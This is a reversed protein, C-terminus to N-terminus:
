AHSYVPRGEAYHASVPEGYSSYNVDAAGYAPGQKVKLGAYSPGRTYEPRSTHASRAPEYDFDYQAYTAQERPLARTYSSSSLKTRNNDGVHYRIEQGRDEKRSRHKPRRPPEYDDEDDSLVEAQPHMKSRGRGRNGAIEPGETYTHSRRPPMARSPKETPMTNTRSPRPPSESMQAAYQPARKSAPSADVIVPDEQVPERSTRHINRERSMTPVDSSGRRPRASSRRVEDEEPAVFAGSPAPPPTPAAPPQTPGTTQARRIYERANFIKSSSDMRPDDTYMRRVGPPPHPEDRGSSRERADYARGRSPNYTIEDESPEIYPDRDRRKDEKDRKKEKSEQKERTRKAEKRAARQMREEEERQMEKEIKKKEKERKREKEERKEREKRTERESERKSPKESYSEGRRPLRVDEYYRPGRDEDRASERTSGSRYSFIKVNPMDRAERRPEERYSKSRPPPAATRVDFERYVKPSSRPASSNAKNQAMDARLKHLRLLDDCRMRETEDSLIEYAQQVKQFEDQKQAKLAPDAVKDPHCKLVLKRHATRIDPLQADMPIGLVKYPDM